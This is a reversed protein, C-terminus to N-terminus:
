FWKFIKIDFAGLLLKLWYMALLPFVIFSLKNYAAATEFDFHILHMIGRTLGCGWCKIDFLLVSLCLSQGQDFYNAPLIFLLFPILILIIVVSYKIIPIEFYKELIKKIM